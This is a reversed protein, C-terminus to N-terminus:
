PTEKSLVPLASAGGSSSQIHGLKSRASRRASSRAKGRSASTESRAAKEARQQRKKNRDSANLLQKEQEADLEEKVADHCDMAAEARKQWLEKLEREATLERALEKGAIEEQKHHEREAALQQRLQTIEDPINSDPQTKDRQERESENFWRVKIGAIESPERKKREAALAANHADAIQRAAANTECMGIHQGSGDRVHLQDAKWEQPQESM